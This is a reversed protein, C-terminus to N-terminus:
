ASKRSVIVRRIVTPETLGDARGKTASPEGEAEFLRASAPSWNRGMAPIRRIEMTLERTTTDFEAHKLWLQVLERLAPGKLQSAMTAFDLAQTILQDRWAAGGHRGSLSAISERERLLREGDRRLSAMREAAEASSLVGSEIAEFLRRRRQDVAEIERAVDSESRTSTAAESLAQDIAAAMARRHVSSGIEDSLVNIAAEELLRKTVAGPYNCRRSRHAGRSSCSYVPGAGRPGTDGAGTFARGCRCYVIGSLVWDSRVGRTRRKNHSLRGQAEAFVERSIIALHADRKGYCDQEARSTRRGPEVHVRGWVVDGVYAPNTLLRLMAARTWLRSPYSTQAWDLLSALSEGGAVYRTFIAQVIPAEDPHPALVLKEDGAKPVNNALIRARDTPYVVQRLYGFPAKAQWYGQEAQGRTGRQVNASLTKRYLTAQSQVIARLVPRVTEDQVDDHEAFRVRWGRKELHVRWYASEESQEFRGWRSDNLVFVYGPAGRRRSAAECSAILARMGPRYEMTAGSLGADEFVHGITVGLRSALAAIAARQDALSTQREGAQAETSVRIYGVATMGTLDITRTM